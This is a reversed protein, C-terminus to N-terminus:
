DIMPTMCRLSYRRVWGEVGTLLGIIGAPIGRFHLDCFEERHVSDLAKKLDISAALM